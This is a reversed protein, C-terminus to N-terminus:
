IYIYIYKKHIFVENPFGFQAIIQQLWFLSPIITEQNHKNKNNKLNKYTHALKIAETIALLATDIHGYRFHIAGINLLPNHMHLKTANPNPAYPFKMQLCLQKSYALDIDDKYKM